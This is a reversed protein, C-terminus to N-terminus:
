ETLKFFEFFYGQRMEDGESEVEKDKEEKCRAQSKAWTTQKARREV